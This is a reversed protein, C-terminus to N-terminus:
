SVNVRSMEGELLRSPAFSKLPTARYPPNGMQLSLMVGLSRPTEHGRHV